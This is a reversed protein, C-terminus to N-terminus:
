IAKQLVQGPPMEKETLASGQGFAADPLDNGLETLCCLEGRGQARMIEAMRKSLREEIWHRIPQVAVRHREWRNLLQQAMSIDRRRGDIRPDRCIVESSRARILPM